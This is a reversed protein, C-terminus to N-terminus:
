LDGQLVGFGKIRFVVNRPILRENFFECRSVVGFRIENRSGRTSDVDNAFVDIVFSVADKGRGNFLIAKNSNFGVLGIRDFNVVKIFLFVRTKLGGIVWIVNFLIWVLVEVVQHGTIPSSNLM